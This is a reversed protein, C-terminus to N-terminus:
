IVEVYNAPFLGRSGDPATGIWWGDDVQDIETILDGPDFSIEDSDASVTVFGDILRQKVQAYIFHATASEILNYGM